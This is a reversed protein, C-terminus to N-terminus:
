IRTLGAWVLGGIMVLLYPGAVVAIAVTDATDVAPSLVAGLPVIGFFGALVVAAAVVTLDRDPRDGRRVPLDLTQIAADLDGVPGLQVTETSGSAVGPITLRGTTLLRDSVANHTTAATTRGVPTVWQPADLVTDYAVLQDGRRQYEVTGYRLYYSGVRVVVVAVVLGAAFGIAVPEGVLMAAGFSCLVVAGARNAFGLPIQPLSGLVVPLPSVSVRAEVPADPLEPEPPPRGWERDATIRDVVRRITTGVPGDSVDRAAGVTRALAVGTVAVIGSAAGAATGVVGVLMVVCLVGMPTALIERASVDTYAASALYGTYFRTLRTVLLGAVGVVFETSVVGPAGVTAWCVVSIPVAVGFWLGLIRVAFPLNRPYIPPIAAHPQWGGRKDRLEFVPGLDTGARSGRRAVVAKAAAGVVAAFAEVWYIAVLSWVNWGLWVLGVLPVLNGGVTAVRRIRGAVGRM